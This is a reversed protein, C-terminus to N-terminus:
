LHFQFSISNTKYYILRYVLANIILVWLTGGLVGTYEYWQVVTTAKAFVNGFTLWPYALDWRFHLYEFSMWFLIFAMLAKSATLAKSSYRYALFPFTMVLSNALLMGIAGGPSANWVWWTTSANFLLLSLYLYGFFVGTKGPHDLEKNLLFLPVLAIFILPALLNPPWALFLLLPSVLSLVMCYLHNTRNM